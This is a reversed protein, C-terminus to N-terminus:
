SNSGERAPSARPRFLRSVALSRGNVLTVRVTLRALGRADNGDVDEEFNVTVGPHVLRSRFGRDLGDLMVVRMRPSASAFRNQLLEDVSTRGQAVARIDEASQGVLLDLLVWMSAQITEMHGVDVASSRNRRILDVIAFLPGAAILLAMMIEVLHHGKRYRM